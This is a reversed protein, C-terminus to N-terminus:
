TKAPTRHLEGATVERCGCPKTDVCFTPIYYALGEAPQQSDEVFLRITDIEPLYACSVIKINEPLKLFEHLIQLSVSILGNM